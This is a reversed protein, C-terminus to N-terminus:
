FLDVNVVHDRPSATDFTKTGTYINPTKHEYCHWKYSNRSPTLTYLYIITCYVDTAAQLEIQTAWVRDTRMKEIHQEITEGNFVLTQYRTAHKEIYSVIENRVRGHQEQSGYM